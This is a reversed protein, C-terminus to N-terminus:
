EDTGVGPEVRFVLPGDQEDDTQGSFPVFRLMRVLAEHLGELAMRLPFRIAELQDPTLDTLAPLVTRWRARLQDVVDEVPEPVVIDQVQMAAM